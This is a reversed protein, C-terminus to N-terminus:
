NMKQIGLIDKQITEMDLVDITGTWDTDGKIVVTVSDVVVDNQIVEIINGTAM